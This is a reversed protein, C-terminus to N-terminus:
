QLTQKMHVAVFNFSATTTKSKAAGTYKAMVVADRSTINTLFYEIDTTDTNSASASPTIVVVPITSAPLNLVSYDLTAVPSVTSTIVRNTVKGAYIIPTLVVNQSKVKMAALEGQLGLILQYLSQLKTIDIPEGDDFTLNAM